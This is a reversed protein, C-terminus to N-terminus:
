RVCGGAHEHLSHSLSVDRSRMRLGSFSATGPPAVKRTASQLAHAFCRKPPSRHLRSAGNPTSSSAGAKPLLAQEAHLWRFFLWERLLGRLNAECVLIVDAAAERCCAAQPFAPALELVGFRRGRSQVGLEGGLATSRVTSWPAARLTTCSPSSVHRSTYNMERSPECAAATHLPLKM